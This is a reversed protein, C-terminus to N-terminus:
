YELSEKVLTANILKYGDEVHDIESYDLILTIGFGDSDICAWVKRSSTAATNWRHDVDDM